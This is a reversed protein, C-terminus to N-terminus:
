YASALLPNERAHSELGSESIEYECEEDGLAQLIAGRGMVTELDGADLVYDRYDGQLTVWLRGRLVQIILGRSRYSPRSVAGAVLCIKVTTEM